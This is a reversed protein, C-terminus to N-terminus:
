DRKGSTAFFILGGSGCATPSEVVAMQNSNHRLHCLNDLRKKLDM